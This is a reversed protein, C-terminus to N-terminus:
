SSEELADLRAILDRYTDSSELQDLSYISEFLSRRAVLSARERERRSEDVRDLQEAVVDLVTSRVFPKRLIDDCEVSLVDPNPRDGVVLVTRPWGDLTSVFDHADIGPLDIDLLFVDVDESFQAALEEDDHARVVAYRDSLWQGCMETIRRDRDALLITPTTTEVYEDVWDSLSDFIPEMARGAETRDYEVRLPSESVIRREVVGADQLTALTDSLVKSSIDPIRELLENFGQSGHERLLLLIIPSWKKSLLDLAELARRGDPPISVDRYHM